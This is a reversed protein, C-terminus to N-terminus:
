LYHICSMVQQAYTLLPLVMPLHSYKINTSMLVQVDQKHEASLEKSCKECAGRGSSDQMIISTATQSNGNSSSLACYFTQVPQFQANCTGEKPRGCGRGDDCKVCKRLTCALMGCWYSSEQASLYINM